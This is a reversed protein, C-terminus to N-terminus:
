EESYSFEIETPLNKIERFDKQTYLIRTSRGNEESALIVWSANTVSIKRFVEYYGTKPDKSRWYYTRGFSEKVVKTEGDTFIKQGAYHYPANATELNYVRNPNENSVSTLGHEKLFNGFELNRFFAYRQDIYGGSLGIVGEVVGNNTQIPYDRLIIRPNDNIKLTLKAWGKKLKFQLTHQGDYCKRKCICVIAGDEKVYCEWGNGFLHEEDYETVYADNHGVFKGGRVDITLIAM